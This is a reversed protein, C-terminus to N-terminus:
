IEIIRHTRYSERAALCIRLNERAEELTCMPDPKGEVADMFDNAQHMFMSEHVEQPHMSEKIFSESQWRGSDDDAFELRAADDLLRLNARTGIFEMTAVRPKQFQNITINVMAGSAMRLNMLLSDECEVSEFVLQDYMACVERVPGMTWLVLDVFHGACDLITGGGMCRKAYYTTQYDPRYKRFDQSGNFYAMRVEGIRGADLDAKLRQVWKRSRRVYGVRVTLDKSRVTEVLKDVGDLTVSLPKETLFPVGADALRQGVPVHVHAPAAIVALDVDDLPAAEVDSYTRNLDYTAAVDELKTQDIECVSIRARNTKLFGRIHRKGIGGAGIILVRKM